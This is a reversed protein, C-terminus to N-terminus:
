KIRKEPPLYPVKLKKFIGKEGRVNIKKNNKFLGEQNLKYGLKKAKTRLNINFQKSGTSYLLM